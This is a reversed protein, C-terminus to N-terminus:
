SAGRVRVGVQIAVKHEGYHHMRHRVRAHGAHMRAHARVRRGWGHVTAVAWEDGLRRRHAMVINAMVVHAMVICAIVTYAM